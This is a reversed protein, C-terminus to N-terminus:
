LDQNAPATTTTPQSTPKFNDRKMLERIHQIQQQSKFKLYERVDPPVQSQPLILQTGNDFPILAVGPDRGGAGSTSASWLYIGKATVSYGLGTFGSITDLAQKITANDLMLRVNRFEGPVSQVAGPQIDFDLGAKQSLEMLVQSVDTGNYRVSITKQLQNRVQDEKTVLVISKGWPYWTAITASTVAELADALTANRPVSIVQDAKLADGTRNELAFPSKLDVLKQDVADLLQRVTAHDSNLALPTSFLQDIAQLEQVTARKGLRTLAPVPRLEVANDRLVFTLGLKRTIAELAQRLTQNEIKANINTGQGWPLLDWVAPAAELRVGTQEAITAMVQPLTGNLELKSVQKDLAENILASTDQPQAWLPLGLFLVLLMVLSLPRM